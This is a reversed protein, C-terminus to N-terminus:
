GHVIVGGMLGRYLKESSEFYFKENIYLPLDTRSIGRIFSSEFSSVCKTCVSVSVGGYRFDKLAKGIGRYVLEQKLIFFSEIDFMCDDYCDACIVRGCHSCEITCCEDYENSCSACIVIRDAIEM